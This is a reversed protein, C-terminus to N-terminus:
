ERLAATIFGLIGLVAIMAALLVSLSRPAEPQQARLPKM